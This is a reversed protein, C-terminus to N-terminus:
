LKWLRVERIFPQPQPIALSKAYSQTIRFIAARDLLSQTSNGAPPPLQVVAPQRREWQSASFEALGLLFVLYLNTLFIKRIM